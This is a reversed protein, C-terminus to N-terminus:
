KETKRDINGFSLVIFSRVLSGEQGVLQGLRRAPLRTLRFPRVKPGLAEIRGNEREQSSFFPDIGQVEGQRVKRGDRNTCDIHVSPFTLHALFPFVSRNVSVLRDNGKWPEGTKEEM